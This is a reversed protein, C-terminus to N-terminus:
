VVVEVCTVGPSSIFLFKKGNAAQDLGFTAGKGHSNEDIFSIADVDDVNIDIEPDERPTISVKL